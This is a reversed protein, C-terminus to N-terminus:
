PLPVTRRVAFTSGGSGGAVDAWEAADTDGLSM